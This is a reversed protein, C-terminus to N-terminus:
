PQIYKITATDHAETEALNKEFKNNPKTLILQKFIITLPQIKDRTQHTNKCAYGM